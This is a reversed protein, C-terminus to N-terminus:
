IGSINAKLAKVLAKAAVKKATKWDTSACTHKHTVSNAEVELTLHAKGNEFSKVPKKLHYQYKQCLDNLEKVPHIKVTEPTILPELLPRISEFVVEKNYGSDVFIAGALSEIVDALVKPFNTESEWGYTSELSLQEFEHTTAVLQKHLEHSAHLIHKHLGARLASLAYCDNNVSASRLDTLLGPPMGPYKFYMHMTILHDLVSDGLFELRQYCCRPIGPLVYSGHTLAEVLLSQDRFSYNLVSELNKVNVYMSPCAPTHRQYPLVSFDVEIGLWNLFLLAAAEGGSSLFAGILAEVADAVRKNKITQSGSIYMKRDASLVEEELLFKGSTDGPIPWKKLDFPENRIFGPIKRKCGLKCLAANSIVKERELSLLGEDHNQYTKFLEQSVAYKLFSDGLTELSELHFSELCKKTTIAELVKDAPVYVNQMHHDTIMRRLNTSLLLSEVRHMISPVLSFSYLTSVSIPSMIISCLEPPLEVSAKSPDKQKQQHCRQLCNQVAFLHRGRLLAEKEYILDLGHRKYYNKYSIVGGGRLPLNSNGNLNDLFGSVCYMCGNHPTSVLCNELMCSCVPGNNTHVLRSVGSPSCNMHSNRINNSVFSVFRVCQWNIISSNGLSGSCPLTFYDVHAFDIDKQVRVLTEIVTSINNKLLVSFVAM